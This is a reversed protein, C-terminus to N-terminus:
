FYLSRQVNSQSVGSVMIWECAFNQSVHIDGWHRSWNGPSKGGRESWIPQVHLKKGGIKCIILVDVADCGFQFTGWPGCTEVLCQIHMRNTLFHRGGFLSFEPPMAFSESKLSFVQMGESNSGFEGLWSEVKLVNTPLINKWHGLM